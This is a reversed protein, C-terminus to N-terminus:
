TGGFAATPSHGLSFGFAVQDDRLQDAMLLSKARARRKPDVGAMDLTQDIAAVLPREIANRLWQAVEAVTLRHVSQDPALLSVTRSGGQRLSLFAMQGPEREFLLLAPAARALVLDVESYTVAFPEAELGLWLASAEVWARLDERSLDRPARQANGAAHAEAGAAQALGLVAESVGETPWSCAM